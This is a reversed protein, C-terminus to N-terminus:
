NEVYQHDLLAEIENTGGENDKDSDKLMVYINLPVEIFGEQFLADEVDIHTADKSNANWCTTLKKLYEPGHPCM